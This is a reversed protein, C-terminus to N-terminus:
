GGGPDDSEDAQRFSERYAELAQDWFSDVWERLLRFGDPDLHQIRRAGDKESRVLGADRLVKLHQSVAPQSVPLASALVGVTRPEDKLMELIALRTPEGVAELVQIDTM